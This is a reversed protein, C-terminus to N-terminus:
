SSWGLGTLIVAIAFLARKVIKTMALRRLRSKRRRAAVLRQSLIIRAEATRDAPVQLKVGGTAVRYMAPSGM